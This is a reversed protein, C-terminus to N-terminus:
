GDLQDGLVPMQVNGKLQVEGSNRLRSSSRFVLRNATVHEAWGESLKCQELFRTKIETKIGNIKRDKIM